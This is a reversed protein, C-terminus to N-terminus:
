NTKNSVLRTGCKACFKATPGNTYGCLCVGLHPLDEQPAYAEPQPAYTEEQPVYAEPQPAYTEEQPVYAEPQPAYTEEQLVYAESQPAYAEEQPVYAEPQPTYAEEQPVYAEPQPAYTEEQPVYAEPQPAYVKEQPAYAEPQQPPYFRNPQSQAYSPAANRENLAQLAAYLERLEEIKRRIGECLGYVDEPLHVGAMYMNFIQQGLIQALREKEKEADSIATNIKAKEVFAKSGESVTSVGKNVHEKLNDFFNAM